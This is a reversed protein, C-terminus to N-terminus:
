PVRQGRSKNVSDRKRRKFVQQLILKTSKVWVLRKEQRTYNKHEIYKNNYKTPCVSSNATYNNHTRYADYNHLSEYFFFFLFFLFFFFFFFFDIADFQSRDEFSEHIDKM